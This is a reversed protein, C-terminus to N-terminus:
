TRGANARALLAAAGDFGNWRESGPVRLVRACVNQRADMTRREHWPRAMAGHGANRATAQERELHQIRAHDVKRIPVLAACLAARDGCRERLSGCASKRSCRGQVVM